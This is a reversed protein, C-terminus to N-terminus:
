LLGYYNLWIKGVLISQTNSNTHRARLEKTKNAICQANRSLKIGLDFLCIKDLSAFTPKGILTGLETPDQCRTCQCTFHWLYELKERRELVPRLLSTYTITIEEGSKIPVQSYISINFKGPKKQDLEM